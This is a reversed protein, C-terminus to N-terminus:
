INPNGVETKEEGHPVMMSFAKSDFKASVYNASRLTEITKVDSTIATMVARGGGNSFTIVATGNSNFEIKQIDLNM